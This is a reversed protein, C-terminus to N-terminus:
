KNDREIVLYPQWGDDFKLHGKFTVTNHLAVHGKFKKFETLGITRKIAAVESKNPFVLLHKLSGFNRTELRAM